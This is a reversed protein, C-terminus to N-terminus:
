PYGMKSPVYPVTISFSAGLTWAAVSSTVPFRVLAATMSPKRMAPAVAEVVGVTPRSTTPDALGSMALSTMEPPPPTPLALLAPDMATSMRPPEGSTRNEWSEPPPPVPLGPLAPM